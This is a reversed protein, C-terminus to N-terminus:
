SSCIFGTADGDGLATLQGKKQPTQTTPHRVPEHLANVKLVHLLHRIFAHRAPARFFHNQLAGDADHVLYCTEGDQVEACVVRGGADLAPM